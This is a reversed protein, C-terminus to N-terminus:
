RVEARRDGPGAWGDAGGTADRDAFRLADTADDANGSGRM